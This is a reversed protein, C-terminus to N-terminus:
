TANNPVPNSLADPQYRPGAPPSPLLVRHDVRVDHLGHEPDVLDGLTRVIGPLVPVVLEADALQAALSTDAAKSPAATLRRAAPTTQVV